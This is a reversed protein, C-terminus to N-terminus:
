SQILFGKNIVEELNSPKLNTEVKEDETYTENIKFKIQNPNNDRLRDKVSDKNFGESGWFNDSSTCAM